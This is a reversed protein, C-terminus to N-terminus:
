LSGLVELLYANLEDPREEGTWHGCGPLVLTGLHRPTFAPLAAAVDAM